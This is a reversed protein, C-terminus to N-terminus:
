VRCIVFPYNGYKVDGVFFLRQLIYDGFCANM